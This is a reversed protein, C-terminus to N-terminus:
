GSLVTFKVLLCASNCFIKSCFLFNFIYYQWISTLGAADLSSQLKCCKYTFSNLTTRLSILLPLLPLASVKVKFGHIKRVTSLITCRSSHFYLFMFLLFKLMNLRNNSMNANKLTRYQAITKSEGLPLAIMSPM